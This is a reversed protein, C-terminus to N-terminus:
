AFPPQVSEDQRRALPDKNPVAYVVGLGTLGALLIGLAESLTVGDDVVPIAFALAAVLAGVLSKMMPKLKEM